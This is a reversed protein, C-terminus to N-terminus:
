AVYNRGGPERRTNHANNVQGPATGPEGWSAVLKGNVSFKHVRSNGYGDSVYVTDAQPSLATHTCRHFPEGSMYPKPQGPIGMTMLVKGDLTCKRVTHDGDDTLWITDDPGM